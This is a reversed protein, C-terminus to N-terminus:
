AFYNEGLTEVALQYEEDLDTITSLPGNWTGGFAMHVTVRPNLPDIYGCHDIKLITGSVSENFYNVAVRDGVQWDRM